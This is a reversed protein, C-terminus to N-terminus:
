KKKSKAPNKHKLIDLAEIASGRLDAKSLDRVKKDSIDALHQEAGKQIEKFKEGVSPRNKPTPAKAENQAKIAARVIDRKPSTKINSKAVERKVVLGLARSLEKKNFSKKSLRNLSLTQRSAQSLPAELLLGYLKEYAGENQKKKKYKGEPPLDRGRARDYARTVNKDLRDAKQQTISYGEPNRADIAAMERARGAMGQEHKKWPEHSKVSFKVKGTKPDTSHEPKGELDLDQLMNERGKRRVKSRRTAMKWRKYTAGLKEKDEKRPPWSGEAKKKQAQHVRKLRSLSLSGESLVTYIKEYSNMKSNEQNENASKTKGGAQLRDYAKQLQARKLPPLGENKLASLIKSGLIVDRTERSPGAAIREDRSKELEEGTDATGPQARFTKKRPIADMGEKSRKRSGGEVQEHM